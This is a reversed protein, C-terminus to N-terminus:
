HVNTWISNSNHMPKLRNISRMSNLKTVSHQFNHVISKYIRLQEKYCTFCVKVYATVYIRLVCSDPTIFIRETCWIGKSSMLNPYPTNYISLSNNTWHKVVFGQVQVLITPIYQFYKKFLQSIIFSLITVKLLVTSSHM